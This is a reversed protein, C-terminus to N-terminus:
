APHINGAQVAAIVREVIPSERFVRPSEMMNAVKLRLMLIENDTELLRRVARVGLTTKEYSEPREGETEAYSLDTFASQRWAVGSIKVSGAFYDKSLNDLSGGNQARAELASRLSCAHGLAVTMGQGFTPNFSTIVDGLPLIRDPLTDLKEFHHWYSRAKHFTRMTGLLPADKIHNYLYPTALSKAYELFGSLDRPPYTDGRGNLSVSWRRGEIPVLMGWRVDPPAPSCYIIDNDDAFEPPREFIGTTYTIKVGLGETEVSGFGETKLQEVLTGSLGSADIILDATCLTGNAEDAIIVGTARGGEFMTRLVRTNEIFTVNPLTRVRKRMTHEYAPRSMALISFGCDITPMWDGGDFLRWNTNIGIEVAGANILDQRLGPILEEAFSEGAKLLLHSHMAQGVGPRAEPKTPLKDKDIISIKEFYPAIAAAAGLGGIGAGIIIAHHGLQTPSTM